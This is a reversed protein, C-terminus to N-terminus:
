DKTHSRHFWHFWETIVAQCPPLRAHERWGPLLQQPQQPCCLLLVPSAFPPSSHLVPLDSSSSIALFFFLLNLFSVPGTQTTQSRKLVESNLSHWAIPLIKRRTAVWSYHRHMFNAGWDSWIWGCLGGSVELFLSACLGEVRKQIRKRHCGKLPNWLHPCAERTEGLRTQQWPKTVRRPLSSSTCSATASLKSSLSHSLLFSLEAPSLFARWWLPNTTLFLPRPTSSSGLNKTEWFSTSCPSLRRSASGLIFSRIYVLGKM